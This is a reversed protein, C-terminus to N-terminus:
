CSEFLKVEKYKKLPPLVTPGRCLIISKRTQNPTTKM